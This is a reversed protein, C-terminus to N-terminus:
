PTNPLELKCDKCVFVPIFLYSDKGEPSLLASVKRIQTGQVFISCGCGCKVEPLNEPNINITQQKTNNM